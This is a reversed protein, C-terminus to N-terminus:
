TFSGDKALFPKARRLDHAGRITGSAVFYAPETVYGMAYILRSVFVEGHNEGGFKVIWQDGKADRVKIKANTGKFDEEVFTYPPQPARTAGGPGWIWDRLTIEGPEQWLVANRDAAGCELVTSVVALTTLFWKSRM